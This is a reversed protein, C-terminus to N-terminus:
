REAAWAQLTRTIPGAAYKCAGLLSVPLVGIATNCIAIEDAHMLESLSIPGVRVSLGNQDAREILYRRIPRDTGALHLSPTALVGHPLWAFINSETCEIAAGDTDTLLGEQIDDAPTWEKRALVHALRGIHSLGALRANQGLHTECIRVRVGKTYWSEPYDPKRYATLIYTSRARERAPFDSATDGRTVILKLISDPHAHAAAMLEQRLSDRPALALGIRDADERLQLLHRELLLIRGAQVCLTDCLGDGFQLGRDSISLTTAPLGNVWSAL